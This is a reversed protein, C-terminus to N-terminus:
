LLHFSVEIYASMAAPSCNKSGAKFRWKEVAELAREDLGLGLSRTVQPDRVMGAESIVAKILVSGQVRARRAEETFEPEVKYVLVPSVSQACKTSVVVGRGGPGPGFGKPGSSDDGLYGNKGNGLSPPGPPAWPLGIQAFKTLAANPQVALDMTPEIMLISPLEPRLQPPLLPRPAVKPPNGQSIPPAFQPGVADANAIAPLKLRIPELVVQMHPEILAIPLSSTTIPILLLTTLAAHLAISLIQPPKMVFTCHM